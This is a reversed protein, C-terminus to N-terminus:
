ALQSGFPWLFSQPLCAFWGVRQKTTAMFTHDEGEEEQQGEQEKKWKRGCVRM